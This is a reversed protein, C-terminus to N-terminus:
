ATFSTGSNQRLFSPSLRCVVARLVRPRNKTIEAGIVFVTCIRVCTRSGGAWQTKEGFAMLCRGEHIENSVHADDINHAKYDAASRQWEQNHSSWSVVRRRALM